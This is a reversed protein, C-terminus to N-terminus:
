VAIKRTLWRYSQWLGFARQAWKFAGRPRLLTLALAAGAVLPPRAIIFRLVDVCRDIFHLPQEWSQLTQAVSERERAARELLRARKAEIAALRRNM